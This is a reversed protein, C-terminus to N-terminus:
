QNKQNEDERLVESISRERSDLASGLSQINGLSRFEGKKSKILKTTKVNTSQVVKIYLHKNIVDDEFWSSSLIDPSKKQILAEITVNLPKTSGGEELVIKSFSIVPCFSEEQVCVTQAADTPSALSRPLTPHTAM